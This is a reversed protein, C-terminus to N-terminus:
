IPSEVKGESVVAQVIGELGSEFPAVTAAATGAYCRHGAPVFKKPCNFSKFENTVILLYSATVPGIAEVSTIM